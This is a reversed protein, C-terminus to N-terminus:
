NLTKPPVKHSDSTPVWETVHESQLVAHVRQILFEIAALTLIFGDGRCGENGCDIDVLVLVLDDQLEFNRSHLLFIQVDADLVIREGNPALALELLLLLFLIEMTDLPAVAAEVTCERHRVGDVGLINLSIIISANQADLKLLASLGLRLLDLHLDAASGSSRLLDFAGRCDLRSLALVAAYSYHM